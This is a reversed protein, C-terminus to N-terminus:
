AVMGLKHEQEEIKRMKEALNQKEKEIQKRRKEAKKQERTSMQPMPQTAMIPKPPEAPTRKLVNLANNEPEPQRKPEYGEAFQTMEALMEDKLDQKLSKKLVDYKRRETRTTLWKSMFTTMLTVGLWILGLLMIARNTIRQYANEYFDARQTFENTFTNAKTNLENAFFQRTQTHEQQIKNILLTDSQQPTEVAIALSAFMLIVVMIMILKKMM